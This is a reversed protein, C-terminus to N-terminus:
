GSDSWEGTISLSNAVAPIGREGRTVLSALTDIAVAGVLDAREDLGPASRDFPLSNALAWRVTIGARKLEAQFVPLDPPHGVVVVDPRERRLWPLLSPPRDSAYILPACRVGSQSHHWALAAPLTDRTRLSHTSRGTFGLRRFGCEVLRDVLLRANAAHNPAVEHFRPFTVSSTAAVVSFDDWGASDLRTPEALPLLLIGGAGRARAARLAARWGNRGPTVRVIAFDFGLERARQEAHRALRASYSESESAFDVLACLNAHFGPKGGYRLHQMLRGIEPDPRYGMRAAAARIRKRLADSVGPRGRLARSVTMASVGLADAVSTLNVRPM